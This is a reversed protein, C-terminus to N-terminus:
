GISTPWCSWRASCQQSRCGGAKTATEITKQQNNTQQYDQMLTQLAAIKMVSNPYQILYAELGSIQGAPEKQESPVWIRTINPQIKLSRPSQHQAAITAAGSSRTRSGQAPQAANAPNQAVLMSAAGLVVTVLIKKM